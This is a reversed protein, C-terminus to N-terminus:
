AHVHICTYTYMGASQGVLHLEADLLVDPGSAAGLRDAHIYVRIFIHSGTGHEDHLRRQSSLVVVNCGDMYCLLLMMTRRVQDKYSNTIRYMAAFSGRSKQKKKPPMGLQIWCCFSLHGLTKPFFRIQRCARSSALCSRVTSGRETIKFFDDIADM